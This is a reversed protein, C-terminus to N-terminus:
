GPGRNSGHHDEHGDHDDDEFAHFSAIINSRVRALLTANSTITSPDILAGSSNIFWGGVPVDITVSTPTGDAVVLATSFEFEGRTNVPVTVDFPKGDFTGVLRAFAVRLEIERFTGAPIANAPLTAIGGSLPLDVSVPGVKLDPCDDNDDGRDGDSPSAGGAGEAPALNDDGSEDDSECVDNKSPKLEVRSITLTAQTLDLTHGGTTVPIILANASTLGSTFAIQSASRNASTSDSCASALVLAALSGAVAARRSLRGLMDNSTFLM